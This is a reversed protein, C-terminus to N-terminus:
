ATASALPATAERLWTRAADSPLLPSLRALCDAHYGNIWETEAPTLLAVDILKAQLPAWTITDFALFGTGGFNHKCTVPKVVMVNEVRMGFKGDEYYGPENTVTMNAQLGVNRAHPRFSILHPRHPTIDADASTLLSCEGEHVNLYSGVGHGTGHRYDLGDRWLAVRALIDLVHGTTGSPFVASALGIHGRLVQTFCAKEHGSPKGFHVTRTVDTTGDLYQAGSDCLYIHDPDLPSCATVSPQYHIVAANPGVSSITPFSLGMFHQKQARCRELYDAVTVETLAAQAGAAPQKRKLSSVYEHFYGPANLQEQQDLWHLFETLAAGDRLHAQRLGELEAENKLAKALALPSQQLLTRKTPLRRQVAKLIAYSCSAPDLWVNGRDEEQPLGPPPPPPDEVPAAAAAAADNVDVKGAAHPITVAAELQGGGLLECDELIAEYPRVTVANQQLYEEVEPGLKCPDIYLFANAATVIAYAKEVPCYLVDQGRLNFLWAVQAWGGARRRRSDSPYRRHHHRRSRCPAGLYEDLATVVISSARAAALKTRLDRAKDVFSCGAFRLAHVAAPANTVPPRGRAWVADVLDQADALPVLAQECGELAAEFRRAMDVSLVAANVGIRAGRPLTMALWKEPPPDELRMLRWLAADLQQLAQLYYRGDTWLLAEGAGTIVALGASGDFGSVFGRRKDREAVYESLLADLKLAAM